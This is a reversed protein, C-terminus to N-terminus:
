DIEINYRRYVYRILSSMHTAKNTVYINIANDDM